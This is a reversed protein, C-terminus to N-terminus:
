TMVIELPLTSSKTSSASFSWTILYTQKENKKISKKNKM